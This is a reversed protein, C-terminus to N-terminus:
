LLPTAQMRSWTGSQMALTISVGMVSHPLYSRDPSSILSGIERVFIMGARMRHPPSAISTPSDASCESTAADMGAYRELMFGPHNQLDFPASSCGHQLSTASGAALMFMPVNLRSRRCM